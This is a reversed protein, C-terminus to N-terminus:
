DHQPIKFFNVANFSTEKAVESPSLGKIMAIKETTIKVYEPTNIKVGEKRIPEPVLYPGDTEVMIRDLPLDKVIELVEVGTKYTILGTLSIMGGLELIKEATEKTDSFCHWVFHFESKQKERSLIKLTHETANRSHVIVPLDLIKALDIQRVFLDEQEELTRNGDVGPTISFDMGCEGIAVVMNEAVYRILYVFLDEDNLNRNESTNKLPYLGASLFVEAHKQRLSINGEMEEVTCGISVMYKIGAEISKHITEDPNKYKSDALHVHTDIYM